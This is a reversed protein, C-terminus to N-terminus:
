QGFSASRKSGLSKAIAQRSITEEPPSEALECYGLTGRRAGTQIRCPVVGTSAQGRLGIAGAALPRHATLVVPWPRHNQSGKAVRGGNGSIRMAAAAM